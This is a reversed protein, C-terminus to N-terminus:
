KVDGAGHGRCLGVYAVDVGAAAAVCSNSYSENNCGCVPLYIQVCVEPRPMCKGQVDGIGCAANEPYDCWEKDSCAIGPFGGCMGNTSPAGKEKMTVANASSGLAALAIGCMLLIRM